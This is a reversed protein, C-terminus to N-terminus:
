IQKVAAHFITISVLSNLSFGMRYFSAWGQTTVEISVDTAM